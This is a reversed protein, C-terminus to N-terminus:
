IFRVFSRVFSDFSVVLWRLSRGTYFSISFHAEKYMSKTQNPKLITCCSFRRFFFSLLIPSFFIPSCSNNHMFYVHTPCSAHDISWKMQDIHHTCNTHQSQVVANLIPKRLGVLFLSCCFFVLENILLQIRRVRDSRRKESWGSLDCLISHKSGIITYLLRGM